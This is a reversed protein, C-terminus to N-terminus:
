GAAQAIENVAYKTSVNSAKNIAYLEWKLAHEPYEIGRAILWDQM